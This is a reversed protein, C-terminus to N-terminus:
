FTGYRCWWGCWWWLSILQQEDSVDM